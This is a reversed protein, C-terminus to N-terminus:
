VNASGTGRKGRGNRGAFNSTQSHCNPCLLELNELRNDDRKGNIHHLALTVSEGLWDTLGCRECRAEKLGERILRAKVNYRGRYTHAVLLDEIPILSPRPVVAGRKVADFWSASSFGFTTICDRVSHGEDYFRQIAAWDYRRACRDDVGHALRRAHYSVTPKSIGLRRAIEARPIGQALMRAVEERTKSARAAPQVMTPRAPQVINPDDRPEQREEEGLRELHYRVTQPALDLERAIARQALGASHLQAIAARVGTV